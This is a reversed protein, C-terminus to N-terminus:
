HKRVSANPDGEYNGDTSPPRFMEYPNGAIMIAIPVVTYEDGDRGIACVGAVSKGTAVEQLDVLALDGNACARKLTEFNPIFGQLRKSKRTTM